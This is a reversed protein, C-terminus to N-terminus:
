KALSTKIAINKQSVLLGAIILVTALIQAPSVSENYFINGGLLGFIPVLLTLPAVSSLSYKVILRNWIWYGLLTTPYAQFLVSFWTGSNVQEFLNHFIEGGHTLWALLVLPIPAFLMSWLNFAFISKPHASKLIAGTISWFLAGLLVLLLGASTLAGGNYLLEELIIVGLGTIALSAGLAKALSISDGFYFRGILLSSVVNLQLLLSAMGASLGMDISWTVMGWVGIGFCLGHIILYSWKVDPKKIFFILPLVAFFFRAATLLLPDATGVGLKIVSFNFGWLCMIAIGISLDRISM